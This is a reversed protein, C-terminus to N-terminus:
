LAGYPPPGSGTISLRDPQGPNFRGPVFAGDRGNPLVLTGSSAKCVPWLDTATQARVQGAWVRLHRSNQIRIDARVAIETGDDLVVTAPGQYSM